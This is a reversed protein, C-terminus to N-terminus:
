GAEDLIQLLLFISIWLVLLNGLLFRNFANRSTAWVRWQGATKIALWGGLVALRDSNILMPYVLLESFGIFTPIWYDRIEQPGAFGLFAVRCRGLYSLAALRNRVGDAANVVENHLSDAKLLSLVIRILISAILAERVPANLILALVGLETM